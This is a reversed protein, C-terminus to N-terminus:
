YSVKKTYFENFYHNYTDQDFYKHIIIKLIDIPLYGFLGNMEQNDPYFTNYLCSTIILMTATNHTVCYDYLEHQKDMYLKKNEPTIKRISWPINIMPLHLNHKALINYPVGKELIQKKSKFKLRIIPVNENNYFLFDYYSLKKIVSGKSISGDSRPININDRYIEDPDKNYDYGLDNINYCIGYFRYNTYENNKLMYQIVKNKIFIDCEEKDCSSFRENPFTIISNGKENCNLCNGIMVM